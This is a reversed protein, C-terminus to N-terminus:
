RGGDPVAGVGTFGPVTQTTPPEVADGLFTRWQAVYRGRKLGHLEGRANAAAWAVPVGDLLLERLENTANQIVLTDGNVGAVPPVDVDITRLAALEPQALMPAVGMTPMPEAAFSANAPPVLLPTVPMEPKKLAGTLEFVLSGAKEDGRARPAGGTWHLEARVPLEDLECLRTSPPANMLDLLVRCLLVGGEAAGELHGIEMSAQAARTTVEMKHTRIGIRRGGEEKAVVDAATIPAVDLRREGLLARMAGPALPRYTAAGPWVLVHGFRDSRARIETGAPLMFGEGELVLRLHTASFDIAVRLETAKRAAELGLQSVENARPPGILDAQRFVASLTYGVGEKSASEAPLVEDGRLPAPPPGGELLAVPSASATNTAVALPTPQASAQPSEGKAPETTTSPNCAALALMGWLTFGGRAM